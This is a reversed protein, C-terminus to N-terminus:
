CLAKGLLDRSCDRRSLLTETHNMVKWPRSGPLASEPPDDPSIKRQQIVALQQLALKNSLLRRLSPGWQTTHGDNTQFYCSGPDSAVSDPPDYEAAEDAAEDAAENLPEGKHARVKVFLSSAGARSRQNLAAILEHMLLRQPHRQLDRRFDSRKMSVLNQLSTLSDTLVTLPEDLPAARTVMILATLEATTSSPEGHVAQKLTTMRNHLFVVASGMRGDARVSGDTAAVIGALGYYPGAPGNAAERMLLHNTSLPAHGAQSRSM